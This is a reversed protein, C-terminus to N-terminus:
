REGEVEGKDQPRNGQGAGRDDNSFCTPVRAEWLSGTDSRGNQLQGHHYKKFNFETNMNEFRIGSLKALNQTLYCINPSDKVVQTM